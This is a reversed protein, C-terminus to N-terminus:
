SVEEIHLAGPHRPASPCNGTESAPAKGKDTAREARGYEVEEEPTRWWWGAKMPEEPAKEIPDPVYPKWHKFTRARMTYNLMYKQEIFTRDYM